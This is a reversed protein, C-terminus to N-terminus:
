RQPATPASALLERAFELAQNLRQFSGKCTSRDWAGGDLVRVDYRVGEPWHTLWSYVPVLRPRVETVIYPKDWWLMHSEPRADNPTCDFDEPLEPNIPIDMHKTRM